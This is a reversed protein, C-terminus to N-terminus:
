VVMELRATLEEDTGGAPLDNEKALQQKEKYTLTKLMKSKSENVRSQVAEKSNDEDLDTIELYEAYPKKKLVKEVWGRTIDLEITDGPELNYFGLGMEALLRLSEDGRMNARLEELLRRDEAITLQRETWYEIGMYDSFSNAQRIRKITGFRDFIGRYRLAGQKSKDAEFFLAQANLNPNDDVLDILQEDTLDNLSKAGLKDLYPELVRNTIKFM